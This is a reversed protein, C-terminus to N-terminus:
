SKMLGMTRGIETLRAAQKENTKREGYISDLLKKVISEGM